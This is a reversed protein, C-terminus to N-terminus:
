TLYNYEEPTMRKAAEELAADKASAQKELEPVDKLDVEVDTPVSAQAGYRMTSDPVAGWTAVFKKYAESHPKQPEQVVKPAEKKEEQVAPKPALADYEKEPDELKSPVSHLDVKVNDMFEKDRNGMGTMHPGDAYTTEFEQM